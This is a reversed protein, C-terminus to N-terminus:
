TYDSHVTPVLMSYRWLFGELSYLNARLSWQARLSAAAECDTPHASHCLDTQSLSRAMCVLTPHPPHTPRTTRCLQLWRMRLQWLQKQLMSTPRKKFNASTRRTGSENTALGTPFRGLVPVHFPFPLSTVFFFGLKRDESHSLLPLMQTVGYPYYTVTKPTRKGNQCVRKYQIPPIISEPVPWPFVLIAPVVAWLFVWYTMLCLLSVVLLLQFAVPLM